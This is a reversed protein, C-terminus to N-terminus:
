WSAWATMIDAGWRLRLADAADMVRRALGEFEVRGADAATRWPAGRAQWAVLLPGLIEARRFLADLDELDDVLDPHLCLPIM